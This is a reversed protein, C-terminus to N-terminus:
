SSTKSKYIRDFETIFASVIQYSEPHKNKLEESAEYNIYLMMCESLTEGAASTAYSSVHRRIDDTSISYKEKTSEIFEEVSAKYIDEDYKITARFRREKFSPVLVKALTHTLEHITYSYYSQSIFPNSSGSSNIYLYSNSRFINFLTRADRTKGYDGPRKKDPLHSYIGSQMKILAKYRSSMDKWASRIDRRIEKSLGILIIRTPLLTNITMAVLRFLACISLAGIVVFFFIVIISIIQNIFEPM